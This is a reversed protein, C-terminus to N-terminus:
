LGGHKEMVKELARVYKMIKSIKEDHEKKLSFSYKKKCTTDLVDRILEFNNRSFFLQEM